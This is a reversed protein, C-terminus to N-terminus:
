GSHAARLIYMRKILTKKHRRIERCSKFIVTITQFIIHPSIVTVRILRYINVTSKQLVLPLVVTPTNQDAATQILM